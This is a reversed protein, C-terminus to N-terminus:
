LFMDFDALNKELLKLNEEIKEKHALAYTILMANILSICSVYSAVYSHSTTRCTFVLEAYEFAPSLGEGTVLVIPVGREKLQKLEEVIIKTYRPFSFAIVLDNPRIMMIKDVYDGRGFDIHHVALGLQRLKFALFDAFCSSTRGGITYICGARDIMDSLTQLNARNYTNLLTARLNDLDCRLIEDVASDGDLRTVTNEFRNNLPLSANVYDSVVRKLGSFGSVGLENCFKSITAESTDTLQAIQTITQFPIETYHAIIYDAVARQAPSYTVQREQITQLLKQM